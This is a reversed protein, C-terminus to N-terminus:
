RQDNSAFPKLTTKVGGAEGPGGLGFWKFLSWLLVFDLFVFFCLRQQQRTDPVVHVGTGRYVMSLDHTKYEPSNLFSSAATSASTAPASIDFYTADTALCKKLTSTLPAFPHQVVGGKCRLPFYQLTKKSIGTLEELRQTVGRAANSTVLRQLSKGRSAGIGEICEWVSNMM